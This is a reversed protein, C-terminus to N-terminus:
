HLLYNIYTAITIVVHVHIIYMMVSNIMMAISKKLRHKKTMNFQLTM